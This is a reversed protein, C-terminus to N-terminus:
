SATEMICPGGCGKASQLVRIRTISVRYIAEATIRLIFLTVQVMLQAIALGRRYMFWSRRPQGIDSYAKALLILCEIGEITASYASDSIILSDVLAYLHYNENSSRAYAAALIGLEAPSGCTYSRTAFTPLPEIPTQSTKSRFSNWWFGNNSLASMMTDYRPLASRLIECVDKDKRESPQSRQSIARLPTTAPYGLAAFTRLARTPPIASGSTHSELPQSPEDAGNARMLLMEAEDLMSLFPVQRDTGSAPVEIDSAEPASPPSNLTSADQFNQGPTMPLVTELLSELRTVRERLTMKEDEAKVVTEDRQDICRSGRTSCPSCVSSDGLPFICRVKRRRCETCSQTGKRMKKRGVTPGSVAVIHHSSGPEAM